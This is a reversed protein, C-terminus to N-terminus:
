WADDPDVADEEDANGQFKQVMADVGDPLRFNIVEKTGGDQTPVVKRTLNIKVKDGENWDDTVGKVSIGNLWRGDREFDDGNIDMLNEEAPAIGLSEFSYPKNTKKSTGERLQRNIKAITIVAM